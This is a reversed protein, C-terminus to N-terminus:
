ELLDVRGYTNLLTHLSESLGSPSLIVSLVPLAVRSYGLIQGVDKLTIAGAKCEVFALGAEEGRTIIGTVDVEIEFTESGKFMSQLNQRDLFRSLKVASTDHVGVSWRPYLSRLRGELWVMVDSYLERERLKTM